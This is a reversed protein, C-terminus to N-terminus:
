PLRTVVPQMLISLYGEDAGVLHRLTELITGFTGPVTADMHEDTLTKARGGRESSAYRRVTALNSGTSTTTTPAPSPPEANQARSDSRAGFRRM